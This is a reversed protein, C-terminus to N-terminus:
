RKNPRITEAQTLASLATWLLAMGLAMLAMVQLVLLRTWKVGIQALRLVDPGLERALAVSREGGAETVLLARRMDEPSSAQELLTLAGSSSTLEALRAIILMDRTLRDLAEPEIAASFATMIHEARQSTTLVPEFATALSDRLNAEPLADEIRTSIYREFRDNLRGARQAAHLVSAANVFAKSDDSTERLQMLGLARLRLQLSDIQDGALWRQSQRVLDTSDGLLFFSKQGSFPNTAAPSETEEPAPETGTEGPDPGPDPTEPPTEAPATSDPRPAIKPPATARQYDARVTDPLFLLAARALRQDKTGFQEAKAAALVAQSDQRNLMLPAALLYGRAASFDRERLTEEVRRAWHGRELGAEGRIQQFTQEIQLRTETRAQLGMPDTAIDSTYAGAIVRAAMIPLLLLLSNFLLSQRWSSPRKTERDRWRSAM